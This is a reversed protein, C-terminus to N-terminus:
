RLRVQAMKLTGAFFYLFSRGSVFEVFNFYRSLFYRMKTGQGLMLEKDSELMIAVMGLVATYLDIFGGVVNLTLIRGLFSMLSTVVMAAGGLIVLARVSSNGTMAYQAFEKGKAMAVGALEKVKPDGFASPIGSLPTTESAM